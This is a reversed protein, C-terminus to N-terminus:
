IVQRDNTVDGWPLMCAYKHPWDPSSRWLRHRGGARQARQGQPVGNMDDGVAIRAAAFAKPEDLHRVALGSLGCASTSRRQCVGASALAARGLTYSAHQVDIRPTGARVTTTLVAAPPTPSMGPLSM